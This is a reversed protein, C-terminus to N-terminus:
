SGAIFKQNEIANRIQWDRGKIQGMISELQYICNELYEIRVREKTLDSDGDLFQEMDGKLPKLGQWQTWGREDLEEKSMEGRYYRFKALKLENFALNKSMLKVKHAMLIKLYKAHLNPTRLAEETLKNRDISSDSEWENNIQDVNM